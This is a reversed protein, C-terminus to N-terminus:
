SREELEKTYIGIKMDVYAECAELEAKAKALRARHRRLIDLRERTAAASAAEPGFVLVAFRRMEPLPMGTARLRELIKLWDIAPVTFARWGRDDRPLRPLMESKEYFRITDVSLGTESAAESINM